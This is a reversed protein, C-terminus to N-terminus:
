KAGENKALNRAANMAATRAAQAARREPTWVSKMHACFEESRKRGANAARRREIEEPTQTRGRSAARAKAAHEPSLKKGLLAAAIKASHEPSRPKQSKGLKAARMKARTEPSPNSPGEGGDTKNTLDAGDARWLAIRQRELDFAEREDLGGEVIRVEVALGLRSLKAQIAKHHANRTSMSTARGGKGKGVYFCEDRDPRWHEYVYFLGM